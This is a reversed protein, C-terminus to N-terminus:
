LDLIKLGTQIFISNRQGLAIIGHAHKYVVRNGSGHHVLEAFHAYLDQSQPAGAKVIHIDPGTLSLQGYITNGGVRRIGDRLVGHGQKQGDVAPGVFGIDAGPVEIEAKLAQCAKVEVAFGYADDAGAFDAPDEGNYVMTGVDLNVSLGPVKMSRVFDIAQRTTNLFNTHYIPPNAEMALQSHYSDAIMAAKRFFERAEAETRGEPINRARPCGFVLSHCGMAHAFKFACNTTELLDRQAEPAFINGEVGFWISQMSPVSFDFERRLAIGLMAAMNRHAYPTDPFLRTPAIELGQYGLEKMRAIVRPDDKKDWGINSASLKYQRNGSM